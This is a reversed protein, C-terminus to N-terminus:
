KKSTSSSSRATGRPILLLRYSLLLHPFSQEERGTPSALCVVLGSPDFTTWITLCSMAPLKKMLVALMKLDKAKYAYMSFVHMFVDHM